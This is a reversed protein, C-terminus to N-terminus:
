NLNIKQYSVFSREGVKKTYAVFAKGDSLPSVVPFSAFFDTDTLYIKGETTGEASRKQLGIRKWSKEGVPSSEDWVVVLDGNRMSAIQPHSGKTNISDHMVFTKGNDTSKTYFCGRNRGGTFWAFHIGDQNETMAPGTHPCGKLVWNDNSIREPSSFSKGGDTSVIHVMDRISDQIIGRYLAHIGGKKDIFLDTRCCQCCQQSILHGEGFGNKGSTTAFFLGSGEKENTKRNDLWIVAAEGNPLLAVDYYRQDYSSTDKVLPQPKNWTKGNDFSQTFYVLGSYKNKPNPNAAGWLAIVEGSPKFIIKPLNEGHPQINNSNPIIVRENFQKNDLSKAYCFATTSDNIMRIWSLVANGNPDKTFYPSEGETLDVQVAPGASINTNNARLTCAALVVVLITYTLIQRM